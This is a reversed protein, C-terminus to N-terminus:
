YMIFFEYLIIILFFKHMLFNSAFSWVPLIVVWYYQLGM